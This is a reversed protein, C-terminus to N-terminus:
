VNKYIQAISLFLRLIPLSLYHLFYSTFHFKLDLQQFEIMMDEKLEFLLLSGSLGPKVLPPYQPCGVKWGKLWRGPSHSHGTGESNQKIM